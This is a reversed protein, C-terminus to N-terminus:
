PKCGWQAWPAKGEEIDNRYVELALRANVVPNAWLSFDVGFREFWGKDLQFLGYYPGRPNIVNPQYTSECKIVEKAQEILERPWGASILWGTVKDSASQPEVALAQVRFNDPTQPTPTATPTLKVVKPTQSLESLCFSGRLAQIERFSLVKHAESNPPDQNNTAQNETYVVAATVALVMVALPRWLNTKKFKEAGPARNKTEPGM